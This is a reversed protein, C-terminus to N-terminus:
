KGTLPKEEEYTIRQKFFVFHNNIRFGFEGDM